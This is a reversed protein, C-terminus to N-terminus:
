RRLMTANRARSTGRSSAASAARCSRCTTICTTRSSPTIPRSWRCDTGRARLARAAYHAIFPTHIHVLDVRAALEANLVRKLPRSHFRRDEPDLPVGGSPVRIIGPETDAPPVRTSRRWSSPKSVPRRSTAASPASRLPSATSGHSLLRRLRVTGAHLRCRPGRGIAGTTAGLLAGVLVDTPYHLGLVVRSAAIALALPVLVVALEPFRRAPRGPSPWPMCRTARRFATAISRAGAGALHGRPSHVPARARLHAQPIQLRRSEGRRHGAHDASACARPAM